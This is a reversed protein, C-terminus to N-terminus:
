LTTWNELIRYSYIPVSWSPKAASFLEHGFVWRDTVSIVLSSTTTALIRFNIYVMQVQSFYQDCLTLALPVCSDSSMDKSYDDLNALFGPHTSCIRNIANIVYFRLFIHVVEHCSFLSRYFHIIFFYM